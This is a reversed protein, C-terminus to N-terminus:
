LLKFVDPLDKQDPGPDYEDLIFEIDIVKKKPLKSPVLIKLPSRLYDDSIYIEIGVDGIQKLKRVKLKQNVSIQPIRVELSGENQFYVTKVSSSELFDFAYIEDFDTHNLRYYYVLSFLDFVTNKVDMVKNKGSKMNRLTVTKGQQDIDYVYYGEDKGEQWDKEVRLPIFSDMAMYIDWQDNLRYFISLLPSSRSQGKLLYVPTENWKQVSNLEITQFGVKWKAAYISYKMKEGLSFPLKPDEALLQQAIFCWFLLFLVKYRIHM